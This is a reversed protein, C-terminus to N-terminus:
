PDVIELEFGYFTDSSGDGFTVRYRYIVNGTSGLVETVMGTNDPRRPVSPGIARVKDGIQFRAKRPAPRDTMLFRTEADRGSSWQRRRYVRGLDRNFNM